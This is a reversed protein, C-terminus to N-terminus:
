KHKLEYQKKIQDFQAKQKDNLVSYIQHQMVVHNKLMAASLKSRQSVLADLKAEDMKDTKILANIQSKINKLEQYNAKTNNHAQTRIAKVKAKQEDSLDLKNSLQKMTSSCHCPTDAKDTPCAQAPQGLMFSLALAPLWLFKTNM